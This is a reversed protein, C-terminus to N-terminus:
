EIISTAYLLCKNIIFKISVFLIPLLQCPSLVLCCSPCCHVCDFSRSHPGRDSSHVITNTIHLTCYCYQLRWNRTSRPHMFPRYCMKAEWWLIATPRRQGDDPFDDIIEFYRRILFYPNSVWLIQTIKHITKFLINSIGRSCVKNNENFKVITLGFSM